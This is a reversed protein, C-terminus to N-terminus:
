AEHASSATEVRYSDLEMLIRLYRRMEASDDVILVTAKVPNSEVYAM